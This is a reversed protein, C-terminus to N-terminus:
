PKHGTHTVGRESEQAIGQEQCRENMESVRTGAEAFGGPAATTKSQSWIAKWRLFEQTQTAAM